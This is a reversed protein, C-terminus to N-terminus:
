PQRFESRTLPQGAFEARLCDNQPCHTVCKLCYVCDFCAVEEDRCERVVSHIDMPCVENCVGCENCKLHVKKLGLLGGRNFLGGVMGMPCFRCWLRRASAYAVLFLVLLVLTAIRFFGFLWEWGPLPPFAAPGQSAVPCVQQGPCIKCFPYIPIRCGRYLGNADISPYARALLLGFTGLSLGSFFMTRKVAPTPKLHPLGLRRRVWNLADGAACLPCVWGCWWRAGLFAFGAVMLLASLVMGFAATEVPDRARVKDYHIQMVRQFLELVCGQVYGGDASFRCPASPVFSLRQDDRLVPTTEAILMVDRSASRRRALMADYDAVSTRLAFGGYMLVLFATWRVVRRFTDVRCLPQVLVLFAVVGALLLDPRLLFWRFPEGPLRAGLTHAVAAALLALVVVPVLRFLRRARGPPLLLAPYVMLAVAPLMPSELRYLWRDFEPSRLALAYLAVYATVGAALLAARRAFRLSARRRLAQVALPIALALGLSALARLVVTLISALTEM